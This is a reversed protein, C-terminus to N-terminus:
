KEKYEPPGCLINYRVSFRGTNRMWEWTLLDVTFGQSVLAHTLYQVMDKSEACANSFELVVDGMKAQHYGYSSYEVKAFLAPLVEDVLAQRRQAQLIAMEAATKTPTATM